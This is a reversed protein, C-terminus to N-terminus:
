SEYLNDGDKNKKAQFRKYQNKSRGRAKNIINLKRRLRKRMKAAKNPM